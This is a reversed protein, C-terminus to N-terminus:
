DVFQPTLFCFAAKAFRWSLDATKEASPGGSSPAVIKRIILDGSDFAIVADHHVL